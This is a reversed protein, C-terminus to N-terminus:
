TTRVVAAHRTRAVAGCAIWPRMSTRTRPMARTGHTASPQSPATKSRTGASSTGRRGSGRVQRQAPTVSGSNANHGNAAEAAALTGPGPRRRAPDHSLRHRQVRGRAGAVPEPHHEDRTERARALRGGDLHEFVEAVLRDVIQREREQGTQEIWIRSHLRAVARNGSIDVDPGEVERRLAEEVLERGEIPAVVERDDQQKEVAVIRHECLAIGLGAPTM